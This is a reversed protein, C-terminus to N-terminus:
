ILLNQSLHVSCVRSSTTESRVPTHYTHICKGCLIDSFLLSDNERADNNGVVKGGHSVLQRSFGSPFRALVCVCVCVCLAQKKTKLEYGCRGREVSSLM